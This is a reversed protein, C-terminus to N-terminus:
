CLKGDIAFLFVPVWYFEVIFQKCLQSWGDLFLPFFYLRTDHHGPVYQDTCQDFCFYVCTVLGFVNFLYYLTMLYSCPCLLLLFWPTQNM